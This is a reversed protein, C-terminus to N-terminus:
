EATCTIVVNTILTQITMLMKSGIFTVLNYGYLVDDVPLDANTMLELLAADVFLLVFIHKTLITLDMDTELAQDDTM